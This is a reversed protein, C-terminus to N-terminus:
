IAKKRRGIAYLGGCLIMGALPFANIPVTLSDGDPTEGPNIAGRLGGSTTEEDEQLWNDVRERLSNGRAFTNFAFIIAIGFILIKKM